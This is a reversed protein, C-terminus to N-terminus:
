SALRITDTAVESTKHVINSVHTGTLYTKLALSKDEEPTAVRAGLDQYTDHIHAPNEGDITIIPPQM